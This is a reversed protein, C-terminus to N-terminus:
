AVLQPAFFIRSSGIDACHSVVDLAVSTNLIAENLPGKGIRHLDVVALGYRGGSAADLLQQLKNAATLAQHVNPAPDSSTGLIRRVDRRYRRRATKSGERAFDEFPTRYPTTM